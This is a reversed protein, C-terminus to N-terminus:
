GGASDVPRDRHFPKVNSFRHRRFIRLLNDPPITAEHRQLSDENGACQSDAHM